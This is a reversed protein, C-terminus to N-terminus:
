NRAPNFEINYNSYDIHVVTRGYLFTSSEARAHTAMAFGGINKYQRMLHTTGAFVSPSKSSNGEIQVITFDHADVWLTGAILNPAKQRPNIALVLCDRGSVKQIGGPKLDMQYNASIIWSHPVNTPLNINKENDLLPILGLKRVLASGSQSLIAYSKGTERRYTTKVTMEAVPHTEDKGRYVSYHETVTYGAISKVRAQVAADIGHIVVAQDPPQAPIAASALVFMFALILFAQITVRQKRGTSCLSEKM